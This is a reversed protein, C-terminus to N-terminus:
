FTADSALINMYPLTCTQLSAGGTQGSDGRRMRYFVQWAFELIPLRNSQLDALTEDFADAFLGTQKGNRYTGYVPSGPTTSQMQAIAGVFPIEDGFQAGPEGKRSSQFFAFIHASKPLFQGYLDIKSVMTSTDTPSATDSGALYDKGEVNEGVGTFFILVTAGNTIRAALAKARAMVEDAKGDTITEVNSGEYGASNILGDRIRFADDAAYTLNDALKPTRIGIVLAYKNPLQPVVGTGVGLGSLAQPSGAPVTQAVGTAAGSQTPLTSSTNPNQPNQVGTTASAISALEEPAVVETDVKWSATKWVAGYRQVLRNLKAEDGLRTYITTLTYYTEKSIQNKALLVEFEGASTNLLKARTDQDATILALKYGSYAALFNPSYPAGNRWESRSTPPGPLVTPKSADEPRYAAAKKFAARAMDWHLAHAADLGESYASNWSQAFASSLTAAAL